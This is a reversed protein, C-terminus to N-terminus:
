NALRLLRGPLPRNKPLAPEEPETILSISRIPSRGLLETLPDSNPILYNSRFESESNTTSDFTSSQSTEIPHQESEISDQQASVISDLSGQFSTNNNFGSLLFSTDLVKRLNINVSDSFGQNDANAKVLDGALLNVEQSDQNRSISMRGLVGILQVGGNPEVELMCTGVGGIRLQVRPSMVVVNNGIKRSQIMLSGNHLHISKDSLNFQTESGFRFQYGAAMTEMGSQLHVMIRSDFSIFSARQIPESIGNEQVYSAGKGIQSIVLHMEQGIAFTFSSLFILFSSYYCFM